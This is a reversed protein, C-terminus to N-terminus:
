GEGGPSIVGEMAALDQVTPEGALGLSDKLERFAKTYAAALALDAHPVAGRAGGAERRVFGGTRGRSIRGKITKALEPELSSLERPLRPKVECFKGNVARLEVSITEVGAGGRGAGFGTM